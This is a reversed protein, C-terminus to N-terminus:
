ADSQKLVYSLEFRRYATNIKVLVAGIRASAFQLVVWEPVNTAWVAVHDGTSIGLAMLGRSARDVDALFDRYNRRLGLQPFVLADHDPFRAATTALVEGITLGEVWPMADDAM